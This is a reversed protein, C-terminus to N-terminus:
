AYHFSNLGVQAFSFPVQTPSICVFIHFRSDGNSLAFKLLVEKKRKQVYISMKVLNYVINVFLFFCILCSKFAHADEGNTCHGVVFTYVVDIVPRNSLHVQTALEMKAPAPPAKRHHMM